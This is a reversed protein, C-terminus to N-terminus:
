SSSVKEIPTHYVRGSPENAQQIKNKCFLFEEQSQQWGFILLIVRSIDM